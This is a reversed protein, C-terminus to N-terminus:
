QETERQSINFFDEKNNSLYNALQKNKGYYKNIFFFRRIKPNKKNMKSRKSLIKFLDINKEHSHNRKAFIKM